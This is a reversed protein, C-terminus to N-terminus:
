LKRLVFEGEGNINQSEWPMHRELYFPQKITSLLVNGGSQLVSLTNSRDGVFPRLFSFELSSSRKPCGKQFVGVVKIYLLYGVKHFALGKQSGLGKSNRILNNM